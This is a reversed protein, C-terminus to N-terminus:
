YNESQVQYYAQPHDCSPCKEPAEKGTHMYGCERCTWVVEEEKKFVTGNELEKLLKRYRQEHHKESQAIAKLREAISSLGEEEAVRAFEPYMSEHEHNEGEIASKLNGITSGYVTPALVEVSIEKDGEGMKEKIEQIHEFIRKAHSKEQWATELFIGAIQDYGEKKAVKSYFSYRNRAQSEGIFAKILNELTKKM